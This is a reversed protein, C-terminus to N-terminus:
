CTLHLSTTMCALIMAKRRALLALVVPQHTPMAPAEKPELLLVKAPAEKRQVPVAKALTEYPHVLPAKVRVEKLQLAPVQKALMVMPPEHDQVM